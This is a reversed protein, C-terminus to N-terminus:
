QSQLHLYAHFIITMLTSIKFTQIDIILRKYKYKKYLLDRVHLLEGVSM